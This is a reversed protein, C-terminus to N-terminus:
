YEMKMNKILKIQEEALQLNEFSVNKLFQLTLDIANATQSKM